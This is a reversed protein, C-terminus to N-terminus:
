EIPQAGPPVWTHTVPVDSFATYITASQNTGFYRMGRGPPSVTGVFYSVVSAGAAVGSCSAPSGGARTGPTLTIIYTSKTSPDTNLDTGVFADGAGNTPATGLSTLIPAYFGSGCRSAYTSQDSNIVRLSGIAAAENSYNRARVLVAMSIVAIIAIVM